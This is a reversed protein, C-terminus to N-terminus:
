GPHHHNAPFDKKPMKDYFLIALIASPMSIRRM